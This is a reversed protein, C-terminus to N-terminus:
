VKSLRQQHLWIVEGLVIAMMPLGAWNVAAWGLTEFLGGSLMTALTVFGFMLFDHAAQTKGKETPQYAETLLTTSGIYLFNWGIGLLTLAISYSLLGTSLLNLAICLLSLVAGSSIIKLVGFRAILSGTFFSPAFMGLVHWQIVTAAAHFPHRDATIALPTATMILTMVGYGLMSGLVAVLFVPQGLIVGLSREEGQLQTSSLRPLHILALIGLTVTQLLAITMFSGSFLEGPLLDRSWSALQPGAIAALVGGSVVLSIAQSRWASTAVDAAAFRYYGAFGNSMGFLTTALCFGWFSHTAIAGVGLSAGGVGILVGVMFGLKRGVRQMLLSAPITALMTALQLLALPLTTLAKEPALSKGILAATTFLVTTSTMSLAQCLALLSVNKKASNISM